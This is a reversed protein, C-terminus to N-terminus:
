LRTLLAIAQTRSNVNLKIFIRKIYTKVTNISIHYQSAIEKNSLGESISCLILYEKSSLPADIHENIKSLSIHKSKPTRALTMEINAIIDNKKFPKVIFGGPKVERAIRLTDTDSYSTIFIFPIKYKENIIRAIDFGSTSPDLAIDLLVLDPNRTHLMDLGHTGTNAIGAIQYGSNKLMMALDEAIIPEDEVILIKTMMNQTQHLSYEIKSLLQELDDKSEQLKQIQQNTKSIPIIKGM